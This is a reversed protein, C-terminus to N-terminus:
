LTTSGTESLYHGFEATTTEFGRLVNSILKQHVAVGCVLTLAPPRLKIHHQQQYAAASQM